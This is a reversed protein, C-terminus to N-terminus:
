GGKSQRWTEPRLSLQHRPRKWRIRSRELSSGISRPSVDIDHAQKLHCVLLPATWVTAHYGFERPDQDILEAILPDIARAVTAPRGPRPADLLRARLDLGERLRFREAWNYVTQRSVYMLDAIEEADMGESLWLVAQARSREKALPTHTVVYELEARERGSLPFPAM